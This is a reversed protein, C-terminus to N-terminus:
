FCVDLNNFVEARFTDFKFIGTFLVIQRAASWLLADFSVGTEAHTDSIL